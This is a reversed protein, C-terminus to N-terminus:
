KYYPKFIIKVINLAKLRYILVLRVDLLIAAYFFQNNHQVINSFALVVIFISMQQLLTTNQNCIIFLIM